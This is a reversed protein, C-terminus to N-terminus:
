KIWFAAVPSIFRTLYFIECSKFSPSNTTLFSCFNSVHTIEIKEKVTIFTDLNIEKGGQAKIFDLQKQHAEGNNILTRLLDKAEDLTKTLEASFVMYSGIEICLNTLDEPGHGELTELAEIVELKNGVTYGLPQDM